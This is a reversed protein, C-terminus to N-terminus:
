SVLLSLSVSEGLSPSLFHTPQLERTTYPSRSSPHPGDMWGVAGAAERRRGRLSDLPDGHQDIMAPICEHISLHISPDMTPQLSHTILPNM